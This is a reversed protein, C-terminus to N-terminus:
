QLRCFEVLLFLFYAATVSMGIIMPTKGNTMWPVEHRFRMHRAFAAALVTFLVFGVFAIEITTKWSEPLNWRQLQSFFRSACFTFLAWGATNRHVNWEKREEEPWESMPVDNAFM